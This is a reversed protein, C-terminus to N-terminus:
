ASEIVLAGPDDDVFRSEVVRLTRAAGLPIRNGAQSNPVATHLLPPDAATGDEHKLKFTLGAM